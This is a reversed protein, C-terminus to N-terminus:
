AVSPWSENSCLFQIWPEAPRRYETLQLDLVHLDADSIDNAARQRKKIHKRLAAEEIDLWFFHLPAACANALDFAQRRSDPHLFTADLIVSFGANLAKRAADFMAKYTNIHMERSYLELDPFNAAIRKRTADTRIIIAREMGCGLLALHSKGSGSLGGIVFLEAQKSQTYAVALDFYKGAEDFQQKRKNKDTLETALLTSVKGRVTARYFLYLNLLSLGSYDGTYELYRSLFRLGLDARGHADCDMILFATDNMTDIIRFEDNFEICDFICPKNEILTINKLHLDGHCPRIFGGAQRRLLNEHQRMLADRAFDGLAILTSEDLANGVHDGAVDLNARIHDALIHPQGFQVTSGQKAHFRATSEALQDMWTPDFQNSRLRQDLLGSQDFQRMKLCYDVINKSGGLKYHAGRRCLPLVDLYIDASLRRNLSLEQECYFKRRTLTSFDLFGLDLPKKLKYAYNGTLFIWSIHTQMMEINEVPHPYTEPHFLARIHTPLQPQNM